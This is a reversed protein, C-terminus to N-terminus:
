VMHEERKIFFFAFWFSKIALFSWFSTQVWKSKSFCLGALELGKQSGFDGREFVKELLDKRQLSKVM